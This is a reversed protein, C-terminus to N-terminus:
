TSLIKGDFLHFCWFAPQLLLEVLETVLVALIIDDGKFFQAYVAQIHVLCM